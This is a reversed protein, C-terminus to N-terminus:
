IKKLQREVGKWLSRQFERANRLAKAGSPTLSYYVKKRGGKTPTEEAMRKDIYSKKYLSDLSVWLSGITLKKGASQKIEKLITLAFANDNLRLISLLLIEEARTLVRM